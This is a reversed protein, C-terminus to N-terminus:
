EVGDDLAEYYHDTAPADGRMGRYDTNPNSHNDATRGCHICNDITTENSKKKLNEETKQQGTLEYFGDYDDDSKSMEREFDEDEGEESIPKGDKDKWDKGLEGDYENEVNYSRKDDPQKQTPEGTEIYEDVDVEYDDSGEHILSHEYALHHIMDKPSVAENCYLCGDGDSRTAHVDNFHTMLAENSKYGSNCHECEYKTRQLTNEFVQNYDIEQEVETDPQSGEDNFADKSDERKEAKEEEEVEVIKRKVETSLDSAQLNAMIIAEDSRFGIKEFAEWRADNTRFDWSEDLKKMLLDFQEKDKGLDTIQGQDNHKWQKEDYQHEPDYTDAEGSFPDFYPYKDSDNDTQGLQRGGLSAIENTIDDLKLQYTRKQEPDTAQDLFHRITTRSQQLEERSKVGYSSDIDWFGEGIKPAHIDYSGQPFNKTYDKAEQESNFYILDSAVTMVSWSNDKDKTGFNSYMGDEKALSEGLDDDTISVAYGHDGEHQRRAKEAEERTDYSQQWSTSGSEDKVKVTFSEGFSPFNEKNGIFEHDVGRPAPVMMNQHAWRIDGCQECKDYYKGDMLGEEKAYSEKYEDPIDDWDDELDALGDQMAMQDENDEMDGEGSKKRDGMIPIQHGNGSNEPCIEQAMTSFDDGVKNCFSCTFTKGDAEDASTVDKIQNRDRYQDEQRAREEDTMSDWSKHYNRESWEKIKEEEDYSYQMAEYSSLAEHFQANHTEINDVDKGCNPCDM